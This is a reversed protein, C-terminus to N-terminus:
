PVWWHQLHREFQRTAMDNMMGPGFRVFLALDPPFLEYLLERGTEVLHLQDGNLAEYDHQGSCKVVYLSVARTTLLGLM